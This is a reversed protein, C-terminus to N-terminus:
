IDHLRHYTYIAGLGKIGLGESGETGIQQLQESWVTLM